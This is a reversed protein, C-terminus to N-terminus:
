FSMNFMAHSQGSQGHEEGGAMHFDMMVFFCVIRGVSCCVFRGVSCCVFQVAIMCLCYMCVSCGAIVALLLFSLRNM